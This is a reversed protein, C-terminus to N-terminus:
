AHTRVSKAANLANLAEVSIPKSLFQSVVPFKEARMRDDPDFTASLMIVHKEIAPINDFQEYEILFGWGDKQPMVVDLFIYDPYEEGNEITDRLFALGKDASNFTLIREAFNYKKLITECVLISIPDDDIIIALKNVKISIKQM